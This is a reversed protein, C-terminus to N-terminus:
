DPNSEFMKKIFEPSRKFSEIMYPYPSKLSPCYGVFYDKTYSIEVAYGYKSAIKCFQKVSFRKMIIHKITQRHLSLFM